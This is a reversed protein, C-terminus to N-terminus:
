NITLRTSFNLGSVYYNKGRKEVTTQDDSLIDQVLKKIEPLALDVKLKKNVREYVLNTYCVQNKISALLEPNAPM